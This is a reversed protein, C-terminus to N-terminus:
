QDDAARLKRGFANLTRGAGVDHRALVKQIEVLCEDRIAELERISRGASQDSTGEVFRDILSETLQPAKMNCWPLELAPGFQEMFRRAGGQGGAMMYLQNMGMAAWRLGPGYVISEDLEGTTAIDDALLHLIERWMAEQLRDSIHGPIERRVILVHMALSEYLRRATASAGSSTEKGGVVEVLPCLYVPNFPHGVLIREPHNLGAQLDSPMFGSTSSAIVIDESTLSAVEGLVAHKLELVEPVCEQIFDAGEALDTLETTFDIRGREPMSIGETLKGLMEGADRATGFLWDCMEPNVDSVIVDLGCHAARAAWGAGIVGAGVIGMTRVPRM